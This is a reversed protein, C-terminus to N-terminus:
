MDSRADFARLEKERMRLLVTLSIGPIMWRRVCDGGEMWCSVIVVYKVGLADKIWGNQRVPLQIWERHSMPAM